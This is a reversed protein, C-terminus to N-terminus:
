RADDAGGDDDEASAAAQAADDGGLGLALGGVALVGGLLAALPLIMGAARGLPLRGQRRGADAGEAPAAVTAHAPALGVTDPHLRKVGTVMAAILNERHLLSSFLVGCVHLGALGLTGFALVEHLEEFFDHGFLGLTGAVGALPGANEEAGYALMGTVGTLVLGALLAMIMYGAAPNHGVHSPARFAVMRRLYALAERPPVVFSSFRAHRTGIVGWALRAAVLALITYGAVVHLDAFHDESTLFAILFAGVVGWHFVRVLPDWVKVAQTTQKSM